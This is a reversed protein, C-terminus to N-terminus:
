QSLEDDLDPDEFRIRQSPNLDCGLVKKVVELYHKKEEVAERRKDRNYTVLYCSMKQSFCLVHYSDDYM